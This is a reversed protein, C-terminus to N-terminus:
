DMSDDGVQDNGFGLGPAWSGQLRASIRWGYYSPFKYLDLIM